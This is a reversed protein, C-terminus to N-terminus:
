KRRTLWVLTGLLLVVGPMGGLLIWRVASMQSRTMTLKYEKVPSPVIGALLQTRDLLWNVTNWAFDRNAEYDILTNGWLYSEGIVVIRTSGREAGVGRVSGKEVAVMLPINGVRTRAPNVYPVGDRLEGLMGEPGTFALEEVRATDANGSGTKIKSISRPLVLRLRSRYLPTVIPHSGFNNVLFDQGSSQSPSNPLDLVVNDGVVAGWTILTRELGTKAGVPKINVNFLALLRGGKELYREIKELEEPPVVIRPGAIILLHCDAPVPNTGALSLLGPRINNERLIDTFQSYGELQTADDPRHEGHGTVFYANLPRANVVSFLATTFLLEGRFAVRRVERSQGSVLNSYDYESLEAAPVRQSKNNGDFIVLNKDARSLRYKEAVARAADPQRLYDVTVVDVKPNVLRYENLLESVPGYLDDHRDFYIITKVDNTLSKLMQVTLPSLPRASQTSWNSRIFFRAALYNVMGVIALLAAISVFVNFGVGWKRLTSFSTDSETEM